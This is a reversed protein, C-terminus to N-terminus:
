KAKVLKGGGDSVDKHADDIALEITNLQEEQIKVMIAMEKM